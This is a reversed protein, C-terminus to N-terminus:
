IREHNNYDVGLQYAITGLQLILYRGLVDTSLLRIIRSLFCSLSSVSTVVSWEDEAIYRVFISMACCIFPNQM